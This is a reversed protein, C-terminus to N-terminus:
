RIVEFYFLGSSCSFSYLKASNLCNDFCQQLSPADVVTEAFGVLIMQPFRRFGPSSPSPQCQSFSIFPWNAFIPSSPFRQNLPLSIYERSKLLVWIERFLIMRVVLHPISDFVIKRACVVCVKVLASGRLDAWFLGHRSATQTSWKRHLSPRFLLIPLSLRFFPIPCVVKNNGLPVAIEASFTCEARSATFEFSNCKAAAAATKEGEGRMRANKEACKRACEDASSVGSVRMEDFGFLKKPFDISNSKVKALNNIPWRDGWLRHHALLPVSLQASCNIIISFYTSMQIEIFWKLKM